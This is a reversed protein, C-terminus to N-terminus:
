KFYQKATDWVAPYHQTVKMWYWWEAGWLYIEPFGIQKTYEVNAVLKHEDMTRFQESLPTNTIGTQTWPEAELEIVMFHTQNTLLRVIMEKFLFFNPGIPYTIYGFKKSWIDRYLTTGFRDGRSASQYWLSLEGSDTTLIPRTPDLSKVLAVETDLLSIDFNPCNGFTLFPENEVQWMVIEPHSKYREIVKQEFLLLSSARTAEGEKKLLPQPTTSPNEFGERGEGKWPSSSELTDAWEPAFCEPWRPVKQGMVLIIEADRKKAEDLQWDIDAFDYEGQNKEMLDWYLPIRIKRVRMDDLLATYTEKWSLGLSEAYRASFTIGFSVDQRPSPGPLNFYAFLLLLLVVVFLVTYGIIKLIHKM